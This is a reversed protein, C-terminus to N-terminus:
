QQLYNYCMAHVPIYLIIILKKKKKRAWKRFVLFFLRYKLARVAYVAMDAHWRM